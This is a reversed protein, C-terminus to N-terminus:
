LFDFQAINTEFFRYKSKIPRSKQSIIIIDIDIYLPM